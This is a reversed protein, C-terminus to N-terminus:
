AEGIEIDAYCGVVVAEVPDSVTVEFMRSRSAGLQRWVARKTYEGTKGIKAWRENSWTNGGDDSYRLMAVPDSGNGSILGVGGKFEIELRSYFVRKRDKHVYPFRRTRIVEDGNDTYVSEDYKFIGASNYDGLVHTNNFYVHGNARYRGTGTKLEFWEKTDPCYVLQEDLGNISLHYFTNGAYQYAFGVADDVSYTHLLWEIDPNSIPAPTESSTQVVKYGGERTQSIMFVSSGARAVSDPAPTGYEFFLNPYQEWPFSANGSNFWPEASNEGVLLLDGRFEIVRQLADPRKEATAVDLASWSAAAILDSLTAIASEVDSIYFQGTTPRNVIFYQDIWEVCTPALDLGAGFFDDWAAIRSFTTGDYGWGDVGDVVVLYDNGAALYCRGSVTNITGIESIVWSTTLSLVKNGYVYYCKDGFKVGNSRCTGGSPASGLSVLGPWPYLLFPEKAGVTEQRPYWNVCQQANVGLYRSEHEGGAVPIKVRPM